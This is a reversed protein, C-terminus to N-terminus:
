KIIMLKKTELLINDNYFKVFYLGNNLHSLNISKQDQNLTYELIQKGNLDYIILKSKQTYDTIDFNLINDSLPNPYMSITNNRTIDKVSVFFGGDTTKLIKNGSLAYGVTDNAFFIDAYAFAIHISDSWHEFSSNWNAGYNDTKDIILYFYSNMPTGSYINFGTSDNIFFIKSLELGNIDNSSYEISWNLLDNIRLLGFAHYSHYGYDENDSCNGVLTYTYNQTIFLSFLDSTEYPLNADEITWTNGNNTSKLLTNENGAIIGISDNNFAISNLKNEVVINQEWTDGYDVSHLILGNNGVTWLEENHFCICNINNTTSTNLATWNEGGDITKIIKGNEGVCYGTNSDIFYIDFFDESFGTNYNIWTTGGDFSKIFIGADSVIFVTDASLAYIAGSNKYISDGALPNEIYQWGQQQAFGFMTLLM